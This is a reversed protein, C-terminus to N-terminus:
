LAVAEKWLATLYVCLRVTWTVDLSELVQRSTTGSGTALAALLTDTTVTAGGPSAAAAGALCRELEGSLPPPLSAKPRMMKELASLNALPSSAECARRVSDTSAGAKQLATAADCRHQALALLM